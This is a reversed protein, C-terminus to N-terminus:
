RASGFRLIMTWSELFLILTRRHQGPARYLYQIPISFTNCLTVSKKNKKEDFLVSWPTHNRTLVAKLGGLM